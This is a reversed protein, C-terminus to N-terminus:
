APPTIGYHLGQDQDSRCSVIKAPCGHVHVANRSSVGGRTRESTAERRKRAVSLPMDTGNEAPGPLTRESIFSPSLFAFSQTPFATISFLDPPMRHGLHPVLWGLFPLLWDGGSIFPSFGPCAFVLLLGGKLRNINCECFSSGIVNM